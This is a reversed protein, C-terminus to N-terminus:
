PGNLPRSSETVSLHHTTDLFFRIVNKWSSATTTLKKCRMTNIQLTNMMPVFWPIPVSVSRAWRSIRLELIFIENLTSLNPIKEIWVVVVIISSLFMDKYIQLVRFQFNNANYNHYFDSNLIDKIQCCQDRNLTFTWSM